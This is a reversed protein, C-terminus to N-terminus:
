TLIGGILFLSRFTLLKAKIMGAPCQLLQQTKYFLYPPFSYTQRLRSLIRFARLMKPCTIPAVNMAHMEGGVKGIYTHTYINM